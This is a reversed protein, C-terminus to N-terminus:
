RNVPDILFICDFKLENDTPFRELNVAGRLIVRGELGAYRGTARIVQSTGEPNYFGTM